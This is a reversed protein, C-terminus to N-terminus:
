RPNKGIVEAVQYGTIQTFAPNVYEINAQDDTILIVDGAHEVALSLKRLQSESSEREVIEDQLERNLELLEDIRENPVTQPLDFKSDSRENIHNQPDSVM